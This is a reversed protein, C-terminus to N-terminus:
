NKEASGNLHLLEDLKHRWFRLSALLDQERSRMELGAPPVLSAFDGKDSLWSVISEPSVPCSEEEWTIRIRNEFFEGRLVGLSSMLIKLKLVEIFIKLKDPLSGFRDVIEAVINDVDEEERSSSLRRYFRLRETNDGIYDEPIYAAFRVNIEPEGSAGPDEGRIKKVEEDLMELFMELGVRGISGSQSEGLINGAGRLRLDEMAVQFGAGLYDMELIIQMRKRATESLGAYSPVIFYTYAQEGSRGVRGRLQYLQGLGFMQAQDVILTNARPFDLGSEIISTCVLIDVEGHWFLHMAKELDREGMQGHATMIRAEPALKQVYESVRELGQVRNYVWFIQGERELEREIVSRLHTDEREIIATEVAKRDVPPTNIVSLTRIGSLSLQLTRPIPTATLTLVDINQRLKKIRDKHRVGFRQEEDLILLSLNPIDIDQSLIRHTGILIDVKGQALARVITEQRKQPVFRSLMSVNVSFEEMRRRFNQYHQEALVTTPCLLGVQKGALVAKFAARMAVETKGFGVDGCVLRDMPDPRDMDMLVDQIAMEQDPTEDFGFSAEFEHLMEEPGSYTYGKAVKRYAYMDVLDRAIKQVEKRVRSKTNQWRSGGLKDLGPEKGEPGKYRQVLNLRDVPLYLKDEGAFLLLIYDNSVDGANIRHLGAFRSLGYDRHVLLDDGRIEEFSSVGQFDRSSAASRSRNGPQLVEEGLVLIQNWEMETGRRLDGILAFLGNKEPTWKRQLSLNEQEILRMFKHLSKNSKFVLLVQRAFSRWNHLLNLLAPWPRKQEQPKWFYDSFERIPKESLERGHAKEGIVLNDFIIQGPQHCGDVAKNVSCLIEEPPFGQERAVEERDWTEEELRSRMNAGDLLVFRVKDGLHEDLGLARAYYLGPPVNLEFDELARSLSDRKPKSIRGTTWLREWKERAQRFYDEGAVAPSVPLFVANELDQRSRQSVSDFMRMSELNDGFFELRLPFDYGPPFVDMIDGRGAVEGQTGVISVREYGWNVLTELLMEPDMEEGPRLYLHNTDVEKKCPLFPLLCGQTIGACKWRGGHYLSFLFKWVEGWNKNEIPVEQLFLHRQEWFMDGDEPYFLHLFSRVQALDQTTPAVICPKLGKEVLFATTYALTAPGAKYVRQPKQRDDLGKLARDAFKNGDM